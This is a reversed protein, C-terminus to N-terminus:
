PEFNAFRDMTEELDGLVSALYQGTLTPGKVGFEPTALKQVMCRRYGLTCLMWSVTVSPIRAL